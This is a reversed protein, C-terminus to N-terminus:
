PKGEAQGFTTKFFTHLAGDLDDCFVGNRPETGLRKFFKRNAVIQRNNTGLGRGYLTSRGIHLSGVRRDRYREGSWNELQQVIHTSSSQPSSNAGIVMVVQRHHSAGPINDLMRIAHKVAPELAPTTGSLPNKRLFSDFGALARRDGGPTNVLPDLGYSAIKGDRHTVIGVRLRQTLSPAVRGFAEIAWRIPEIAPKLNDTIEVVFVVDVNSPVAQHIPTGRTAQNLATQLESVRNKSVTTLNTADLERQQATALEKEKEALKKKTEALEAHIKQDLGTASNSTKKMKELQELLDTERKRWNTMAQSLEAVKLKNVQAERDAHNLQQKTRVLEDQLKTTQELNAELEEILDNLTSKANNADDQSHHLHQTIAQSEQMYTESQRLVDTFAKTTNDNVVVESQRLGDVFLVVVIAVLGAFVLGTGIYSLVQAVKRGLSPFRAVKNPPSLDIIADHSVESAILQIWLRGSSAATTQHRIHNKRITM